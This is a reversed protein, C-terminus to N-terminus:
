LGDLFGLLADPARYRGPKSGLPKTRAPAREVEAGSRVDGEDRYFRVAEGESGDSWRVM